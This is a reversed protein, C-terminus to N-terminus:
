RMEIVSLSVLTNSSPFSVQGAAWCQISFWHSGAPVNSYVRVSSWTVYGSSTLFVDKTPDAANITPFAYAGAWKGDIAPQCAVNGLNSYLPVAVDILLPSGQTNGPFGSGNLTQFTQNAVLLISSSAQFSQAGVLISGAAGQPGTPGQPGQLGTSGTDGKAGQPGTPGAPGQAGTQGIAGQPGQSGTAGTAGTAGTPGVDGKAGQAGTAGVPGQPGTAGQAGTVGQPGTAGIDGKLGQPGAPGQPGVAGQPGVGGQPGIPGAPGMPGVPGVPGMPGAPGQPGTTNWSIKLERPKCQQAASVFRVPRGDDGKQDGKHDDDVSVCAYIVAPAQAYTASPFVAFGAALVGGLVLRRFIPRHSTHKMSLWIRLTSAQGSSSTNARPLVDFPKLDPVWRNLSHKL